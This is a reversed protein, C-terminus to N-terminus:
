SPEYLSSWLDAERETQGDKIRRAERDVYSLFTRATFIKAGYVTDGTFAVRISTKEETVFSVEHPSPNFIIVSEAAAYENRDYDLPPFVRVRTGIPVSSAFSLLGKGHRRAGQYKGFSVTFKDSAFHVSRTSRSNYLRVLYTVGYVRVEVEPTSSLKLLSLYSSKLFKVSVGEVRGLRKLGRILSARKSLAVAAGVTLYLLLILVLLTIIDTM